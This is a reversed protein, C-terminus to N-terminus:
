FGPALMKTMAASNKIRQARMWADAETVLREGEAGGTTEGLRRRAAAAYLGMDSEDFGQIAELLLTGCTSPSGPAAAKGAGRARQSAVGASILRGLPKAWSMNEREIRRALKEAVTLKAECGEGGIASVALAARARLHMAELRLVQIRLLMSGALAPWQGELHKWAVEVDGTYLEIQALALLSSYHQLHFGEHPWAKLAEIVEARAKDPDDAALWILNLRTRLDTAGFINGQEIAASLLGPVRRSVEALEGQYLLASLMFRQAITL